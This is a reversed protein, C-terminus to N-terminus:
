FAAVCGSKVDWVRLMKDCGGSVVLANPQGWGVSACCIDSRKGPDACWPKGRARDEGDEVTDPSTKRPVKPLDLGLAYHLSLPVNGNLGESYEEQENASGEAMMNVADGGDRRGGKGKGGGRGKGKGSGGAGCEAWYGGRSVLNVAWVGLDHGILTRCLVGTTVSFVHIKSNALGVVAWETDLAVSTVVGSDSNVVPIRHTRLLYGGHRWNM